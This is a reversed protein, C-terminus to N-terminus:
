SDTITKLNLAPTDGTFEEVTDIDPGSAAGGM